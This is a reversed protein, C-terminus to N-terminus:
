AAQPGVALTVPGSAEGGVVIRRQFGVPCSADRTWEHVGGGAIVWGVSAQMGDLSVGNCDTDTM